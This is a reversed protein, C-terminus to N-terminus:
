GLCGLRTAKPGKRTLVDACIRFFHPPERRRMWKIYSWAHRLCQFEAQSVSNPTIPCRKSRWIIPAGCWYIIFGYQPHTCLQRQNFGSDYYCVPELNGSSRYLLGKQRNNYPYHVTHMAADWALQTPNTLRSYYRVVGRLRGYDEVSTHGV